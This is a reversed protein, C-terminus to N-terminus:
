RCLLSPRDHTDLLVLTTIVWIRTYGMCRATGLALVLLLADMHLNVSARGVYSAQM